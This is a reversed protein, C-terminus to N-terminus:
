PAGRNGKRPRRTTPQGLHQKYRDIQALYDRASDFMADPEDAPAPEVWDFNTADPIREDIAAGIRVWLAAAHEYFDAVRGNIADVHARSREAAEEAIVTLAQQDVEIAARMAAFAERMATIKSDFEVLVEDRASLIQRWAETAIATNERAAQRIPARYRDIATEVIRALEGPHLAELADLETAGEGFRQEFRSKRLDADKIPIRPLGYRAVQQQTLVLPDLRIDLDHGDRRLLFEIKRAVSVPMGDGSPDFDSIYIIRARKRHALVRQVHWVCHTHSLEGLGTIVTVNRRRALPEFVDNMTSKECWLEIAYPEALRPPDIYARPL